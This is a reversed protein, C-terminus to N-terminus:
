EKKIKFCALIGKYILNGAVFLALLSFLLRILYGEFVQSLYVFFIILIFSTFLDLFLSDKGFFSHYFNMVALMSVISIVMLMINRTSPFKDIFYLCVMSVIFMIIIGKLDVFLTKKFEEWEDNLWISFSDLQLINNKFNIIEKKWGEWRWKTPLSKLEKILKKKKM